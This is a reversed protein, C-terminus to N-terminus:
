QEAIFTIENLSVYTNGGGTLYSNVQVVGSALIEIRAGGTTGGTGSAAIFVLEHLPRYGAPLTFVTTGTTGSAMLGQLYVTGCFKRYAPTAFAGGFAAWSNGLTATTWGSDALATAVSAGWSATILDGVSPSTVAM